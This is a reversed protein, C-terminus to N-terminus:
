CCWRVANHLSRRSGSVAERMAARVNMACLQLPARCARLVLSPLLLMASCLLSAAVVALSLTNITPAAPATPVASARSIMLSFPGFLTIATRLFVGSGGSRLSTPGRVSGCEPPPRTHRQAQHLPHILPHLTFSVKKKVATGTHVHFPFSSWKPTHAHLSHAHM